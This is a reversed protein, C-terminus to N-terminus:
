ARTEQTTGLDQVKDRMVHPYAHQLVHMPDTTVSLNRHRGVLVDPTDHDLDGDAGSLGAGAETCHRGHRKIRDEGDAALLRGLHAEDLRAFDVPQRHAPGRSQADLM